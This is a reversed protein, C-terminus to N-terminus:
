FFYQVTFASDAPAGALTFCRVVAEGSFWIEVQCRASGTGYASVQVHGGRLAGIGLGHIFRYRGRATRVITSNRTRAVSNWQYAAPPTYRATSPMSAFAYATHALNLGIITQRDAFQLSFATDAPLGRNDLCLITIRVPAGSWGRVSCAVTNNGVATVKATGGTGPIGPMRVEYNGRSSRLVSARGNGTTFQQVAAPSYLVSAARDSFVTGFIGGAGQGTTFMVTFQSDAPAGTPLYCRVRAVM